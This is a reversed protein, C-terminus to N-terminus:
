PLNGRLSLQVAGERKVSAGISPTPKPNAPREYTVRYQHAQRAQSDAIKKGIEPLLTALRNAAQLSEYRGGSLKTLNLGLETQTGAGTTGGSGGTVIIHATVGKDMIINQLKAYEQDLVRVRGFDSGILLIVPFGPTKDKNIRDAAEVLADFFMGAGSDAAILGIGSILKQKDTTPKVIPRPTGAITYMSMEIGEPMQEFLQTLGDRLPNIPNTNARGNDVLVQLKISWDIPEVKLIKCSVDDETIGVDSAQLGEVPKGDTGTLSIFVQQQKQALLHLQGFGLAAAMAVVLCWKRMVATREM